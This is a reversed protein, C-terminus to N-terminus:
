NYTSYHLINDKLNTLVNAKDCMQISNFAGECRTIPDNIEKVKQKKM